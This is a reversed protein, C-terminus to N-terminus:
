PSCEIQINDFWVENNNNMGSSPTLFRIQTNASLSGADLVHSFSTYSGDDATGTFRDLETWDAGGNYSVEVAVYNSSGSLNERRYDFSLTASGAESLDAERSVTQGDDQVLLQYDSVDDDIQIDGWTPNTSEGTEEWNTSWNLTGDNQDYQRINFEDRFTGDCGGPGPGGGGAAVLAIIEDADLVSDYIRIDDLKGPWHEGFGSRGITLADGNPLPSKTATSNHVQIGDLYVKGERTPDDYTAAVHYWQNTSLNVNTTNFEVWGSNYYGLSIEDGNTGLYYNVASTTTGKNVFVQWGSLATPRIWASISFTTLSLTDDHPVTVYDNGGDFSLAGDLQGTTWSPGNTLTGNHGGESDVATSGSADDLKWHAVPGTSGGEAAIDAIEAASLFRDYVRIDDLTGDFYQSSGTRTGFSLVNDAPLTLSSPYTGSKHPVGDIYVAYADTTTDYSAAIHYWRGPVDITTTTNFEANVGSVGLDFVLGYPIGDPAGTTVHRVEWNGAMGLIRGHATPPGSVQMWFMVTGVPPPTFNSDTTATDGSGDFDLAGGLPGTTWTAGNRTADNGGVIDAATPGSGEDLKWHAIPGMPGGGSGPGIHASIVDEDDSFLAEDFYLVATDTAPDYDVLDGDKFSLGGLTADDTTSLVIHGNELVHLADIDKSLTTASGDFYLSATDSGPDYEVLDIDTFSLGGLTADSDTSLLIHGNDMLYASIIDENASFASEEFYLVATDNVPDYDVLDGDKFSLGGLTADDKTSLIIHGNQLVHVADIDSSLTTLGGNFFMWATDSGPDYGALDNNTFGLGGLIAVDADTSLIIPETVSADNGTGWQLARQVILRGNNNVYDWNFNSSDRGIPLMVRRGPATGGGDLAAGTELAVLAGASGWDALTQLGGAETGSVTLGEMAGTYIQLNGAVFPQTIYHSTDTIAISAGVPSAFGSAIGLDDNLAGEESVVGISSAALKPALGFASPDITESVYAVDNSSALNAYNWDVDWQSILNVTYGWSEFLAQKAQESPTLNWENVVVMLVKGSGQPALCASGCVCAYNVSLRPRRSPDSHDSTDFREGFIGPEVTRLAVGYNPFTGNLWGEVLSTLEWEYRINNTPGVLTTAVEISDFDGGPTDWNTSNDRKNWTVENENWPNSIRHATVPVNPDNGDRHHLSLTAGLIKAGAPLGQLDFRFLALSTNNNGTAVWTEDDGGYNTTKTFAWIYADTGKTGPQLTMTGAPQQELMVDNRIITRNVGNALKGVSQLTAPSSPPTGVIVELYPQQGAERSAYEGDTGESNANLAIGYNPQGNVWAQVQASLNVSVWVDKAPQSPITALVASDMKAGMTEWTAGAESWDGTLRHIDVAGDPHEKTVYFWAAASLITSGASISSLDYRYLPREFKGADLKIHLNSDTPNGQTIHDSRIWTDQDVTLTYSSTSGLDTTLTTTYNDSSLAQNTIDTYPGCGQRQTQWLAHQLGAQAVYEAEAVQMDNRLTKLNVSNDHNLLLAIVAVLTIALVVPLLIYGRQQGIRTM